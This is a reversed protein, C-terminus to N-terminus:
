MPTIPKRILVSIGIRWQHLRRSQQRRFMTVSLTCQHLPQYDTGRRTLITTLPRILITIRHLIIIHRTCRAVLTFASTGLGIAIGVIGMAERIRYGGSYAHGGGGQSYGRASGGGGAQGSGGSPASRAGPASGGGQGGGRQAHVPLSVLAGLALLCITAIAIRMRNM